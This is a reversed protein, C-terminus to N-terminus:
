ENSGERTINMYIENLPANSREGSYICKGNQIIAVNTCTEQVTPLDHCNMLIIRNEDNLSSIIKKIVELSEPDLGNTPEDLILLNSPNMITCALGLRKKLGQSLFAARENRKNKLGLLELLEEARDRCNKPSLGALEGRFILNDICSLKEYIGNTEPLYSVREYMENYSISGGQAPLVGMLLRALTTKGAGNHGLIGWIEGANFSLNLDELVNSNSSYGFRLNRIEIGM